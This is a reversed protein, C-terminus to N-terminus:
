PRIILGAKAQKEVIAYMNTVGGVALQDTLGYHNLCTGCSLIEVGQSELSRLDELSGSGECTLRVGGNYFLITGPLQDQQALAYLFSKMLVAGLVDDGSGMFSSSVVVVMDGRRVDPICTPAAQASEPVPSGITMTVQYRNQGLKESQVDYAKEHAMKTLNQVAIENDVLTRVTGGAEGLEKIAAKTKVVPIPCADGMADVLKNM